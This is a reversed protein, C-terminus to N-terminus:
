ANTLKKRMYILMYTPGGNSPGSYREVYGGRLSLDLGKLARKMKATVDKKSIHRNDHFVDWLFEALNEGMVDIDDDEPEDEVPDSKLLTGAILKVETLWNQKIETGTYAWDSWFALHECEVNDEIWEEEIIKERRAESMSEPFKSQDVIQVTITKCYPCSVEFMWPKKVHKM